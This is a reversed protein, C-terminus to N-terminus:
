LSMKANVLFLNIGLRRFTEFQCDVILLGISCDKDYWTGGDDPGRHAQAHNMDTLLSSEFSGSFGAIGCM